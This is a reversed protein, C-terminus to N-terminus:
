VEDVIVPKLRAVARLDFRHATLDRETPQEIYLLAAYANPERERLRNLYEVIYEPSECQENTDASLYLEARGQRTLIERAIRYV